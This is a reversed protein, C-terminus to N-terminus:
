LAFSEAGNYVATFVRKKSCISYQCAMIGETGLPQSAVEEDEPVPWM